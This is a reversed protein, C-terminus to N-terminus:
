IRDIVRRVSEEANAMLHGMYASLVEWGYRSVLGNLERAGAENAALQAKIDAVNVDPSRAPYPGCALLDRFERERFRGEEVLLFDDIVVGEEALTRSSPPMSGPTVGGIDAHHARNAVFFRIETGSDNFVPSVVTVDPLHTGGS